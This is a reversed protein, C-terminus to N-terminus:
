EIAISLGDAAAGRIITQIYRHEVAIASGFTPADEPIHESIWAAGRHTGDRLL